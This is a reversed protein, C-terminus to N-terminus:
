KFFVPGLVRQLAQALKNGAKQAGAANPHVGDTYTLQWDSTEVYFAREVQAVAAQLEASFCGAFPQLVVIPARECKHRVAHLYREFGGAFQDANRQDNTGYNIVVLDAPDCRELQGAKAFDLYDIPLPVDGSGKTTIGSNGYAIPLNAVHLRTAAVNTYSQVYSNKAPEERGNVHIGATISDGLFWGVRNTPRVPQLRDAEIKEVAVGQAGYWLDEDEKIADVIIRAFHGGTTLDTAVVRRGNAAFRHYPGDDISVAIIGVSAFAHFTLALSPGNFRVFLASGATITGMLNTTGVRQEFWRGWFYATPFDAFNPETPVLRLTPASENMM